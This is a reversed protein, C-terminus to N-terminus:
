TYRNHIKLFLKKIFFFKLNSLYDTVISYRGYHILYPGIRLPFWGNRKRNKGTMPVGTHSPISFALFRLM